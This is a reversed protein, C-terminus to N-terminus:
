TDEATPAELPIEEWETVYRRLLRQKGRAELRRRRDNEIDQAIWARASRETFPGPHIGQTHAVAWEERMGDM